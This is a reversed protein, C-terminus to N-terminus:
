ADGGGRQERALKEVLAVLNAVTPKAKVDIRDPIRIGLKKELVTVVEVLETSDIGLDEVLGAEPRIEDKEIGIEVLVEAVAEAVGGGDATKKGEASM